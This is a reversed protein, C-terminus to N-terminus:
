YSQEQGVHAFVGWGGLDVPWLIQPGDTHRVKDDHWLECEGPNPNSSPPYWEYAEFYRRHKISPNGSVTYPQSKEVRLYHIGDYGVSHMDLGVPLLGLRIMGVEDREMLLKVYPTIDLPVPLEWDNELHFLLDCQELSKEIARNWSPGPGMKASHEGFVVGGRQDLALRIADMHEKTSGDGALYWALNPYKLNEAISKATRVAYETRTATLLCIAMRPWDSTMM